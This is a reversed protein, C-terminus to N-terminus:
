KILIIKQSFNQKPTELTYFFIGDAVQRGNDDRCNWSYDYIGQKLHSNVLTKILRGLADHIKLSAQSPEALSFLIHVIGNIVPNPKIVNLATLLINNTTTEEVGFFPFVGIGYVDDIYWGAYQVSADSGFDWRIWFNQGSNVTITIVAQHWFNGVLTGTWCSEGPIGANATNALGNYPEVTPSLLIWNTGDTSYKVDGGDWGSEIQYWHMFGIQPNNISAIFRCTYLKWNANPLYTGTGWCKTGSYASSPGASPPGWTWGGGSYGGNTAEFDQYYQYIGCARSMRDNRPNTDNILITRMVVSEVETVVPTYNSFTVVATDGTTLNTVNQTNTYRTMGSGTISCVVAFSQAVAGFNKVVGIPAFPVNIQAGFGPTRIAYLGVDNQPLPPALEGKVTVNDIFMNDGFASVAKFAVYITDTLNGMYFVHRKWTNSPGGDICCVGGIFTWTLGNHSIEVAISDHDTPYGQDHFMYFAVSCQMATSGVNIAPTILRATSGVSALYSNYMAYGQTPIGYRIWTDNGIVIVNQWGAPPFITEDFNEYLLITDRNTSPYIKNPKNINNAQLFLLIGGMLFLIVIKKMM